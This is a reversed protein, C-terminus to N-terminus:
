KKLLGVLESAALSIHKVRVRLGTLRGLIHSLTGTPVPARLVAPAAIVAVRVAGAGGLLIDDDILYEFPDM